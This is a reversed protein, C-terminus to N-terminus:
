YQLFSNEKEKIYGIIQKAAPSNPISHIIMQATHRTLTVISFQLSEDDNRVTIFSENNKSETLTGIDQDAIAYLAVESALEKDMLLMLKQEIFPNSKDTNIQKATQVHKDKTTDVHTINDSKPTVVTKSVPKSSQKKKRNLISKEPKKGRRLILLFFATILSITVGLFVGALVGLRISKTFDYDIRFYLIAAIVFLGSLPILLGFFLQFYARIM